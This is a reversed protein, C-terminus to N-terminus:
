EKKVHTSCLLSKLALHQEYVGYRMRKLKDMLSEALQIISSGSENERLSNGEVKLSSTGPRHVHELTEKSSLTQDLTRKPKILTDHESFQPGCNEPIHGCIEEKVKIKDDTTRILILQECKASHQKKQFSGSAPSKLEVFFLVTSSFPLGLNSTLKCCM